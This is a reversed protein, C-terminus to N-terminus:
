CLAKYINIFKCKTNIVYDFSVRAALQSSEGLNPHVLHAMNPVGGIGISRFARKSVEDFIMGLNAAPNKFARQLEKLHAGAYQIGILFINISM